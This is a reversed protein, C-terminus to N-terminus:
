ATADIPTARRAHRFGLFALIGLFL